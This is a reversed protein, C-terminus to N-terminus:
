EKEIASVKGKMVTDAQATTQDEVAVVQDGVPIKCISQADSLSPGNLGMSHSSSDEVELIAFSLGFYYLQRPIM